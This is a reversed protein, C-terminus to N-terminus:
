PQERWGAGTTTGDRSSRTPSPECPRAQRRGLVSTAGLRDGDRPDVNISAFRVDPNAFLSHSATAFDTLRSGVTIM